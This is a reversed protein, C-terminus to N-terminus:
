KHGKPGQGTLYKDRIAQPLDIENINALTCLWAFVDAFEGALDEGGSTNGGQGAAKHLATALEGVEEVFWMFTAPTGRAKDTAYYRDRIFQQFGGITLLEENPMAIAM